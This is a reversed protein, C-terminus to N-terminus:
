SNNRLLFLRNQFAESLFKVGGNQFPYPYFFNLSWINASDTEILHYIPGVPQRRPMGKFGNFFGLNLSFVQFIIRIHRFQYVCM